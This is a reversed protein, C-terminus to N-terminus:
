HVSAPETRQAHDFWGAEHAMAVAALQSSVGLKTLVARIQSRVTSISVFGARAIDDARRGETLGKLVERERNTLREFPRRQERLRARHQRLETHLEHVEGPSICSGVGAAEAVMEAVASFSSNKDIIGVAGETICGALRLRDDGGTMILTPIGRQDLLRITEETLSGAGFGVAVVAVDPEDRGDISEVVATLSPRVVVRTIMGATELAAGLSEALIRRDEVILVTPEHM